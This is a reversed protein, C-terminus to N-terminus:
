LEDDRLNKFLESFTKTVGGCDDRKPKNNKITRKGIVSRRHKAARQQQEEHQQQQQHEEEELQLCIEMATLEVVADEECSYERKENDVVVQDESGSGESGDESADDEESTGEIITPLPVVAPQQRFMQHRRRANTAARRMDDITDQLSRAKIGLKVRLSPVLSLLVTVVDIAGFLMIIISVVGIVRGAGNQLEESPAIGNAVVLSSAILLGGTVIVSTWQQLRVAFPHRWLLLALLLILLVSMAAPRGICLAKSRTTLPIGELVAVLPGVIVEIAGYAAWRKEAVFYFNGRLWREGDGVQVGDEDNDDAAENAKKTEEELSVPRHSSELAFRLFAGATGGAVVGDAEPVKEIMVRMGVSARHAYLGLFLALPILVCLSLVYDESRSGEYLLVNVGPSVAVECSLLVVCLPLSPLRARRVAGMVGSGRNTLYFGTLTVVCVVGACGVLIITLLLSGRQYQLEERGVAWSLPNSILDVDGTPDFEACALMDAMSNAIGARVIGSPVGLVGGGVASGLVGIDVTTQVDPPVPPAPELWVAVDVAAGGSSVGCVMMTRDVMIPVLITTGSLTTSGVYRVSLEVWATGDTTNRSSGVVGREVSSAVVLSANSQRAIVHPSAAGVFPMVIRASGGGKSWVTYPVTVRESGCMNGSTAPTSAASGAVSAVGFLECGRSVVAVGACPLPLTSSPTSTPSLSHIYTHTNPTTITQHTPSSSTTPSITMPLQETTTYAMSTSSTHLLSITPTIPSATQSITHLLSISNTAPSTPISTPSATVSISPTSTQIVLNTNTHLPSPSLTARSLSLTSTPHNTRTRRPWSATHPDSTTHLATYTHPSSLTNPASSTRLTSLTHTLSTAARSITATTTFNTGTLTRIPTKSVTCELANGDGKLCPVSDGNVFEDTGNITCRSDQQVNQCTHITMASGPAAPVHLMNSPIASTLTNGAIYTYFPEDVSYEKLVLIAGSGASSLVNKSLRFKLGSNSGTDIDVFFSIAADIASVNYDVEQLDLKNNSITLVTRQKLPRMKVELEVLRACLRTFQTVNRITLTNDSISVECDTTDIKWEGTFHAISVFDISACRVSDINLTNHTIDIRANPDRQEFSNNTYLISARMGARLSGNYVDLTNNSITGAANIEEFHGKRIKLLNLRDRICMESGVLSRLM